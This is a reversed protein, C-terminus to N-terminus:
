GASTVAWYDAMKGAWLQARWAVMREVMLDDKTDASHVAMMAVSLTAMTIAMTQATWAARRAGMKAAWRLAKLDASRDATKEVKWDASSGVKREAM